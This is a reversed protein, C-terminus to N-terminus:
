MQMISSNKNAVWQVICMYEISRTKKKKKNRVSSVSYQNPLVRSHPLLSFTQRACKSYCNLCYGFFSLSYIKTHVCAGVCVATRVPKCFHFITRWILTDIRVTYASINYLTISRSLLNFRFLFLSLLFRFSVLGLITPPRTPVLVVKLKIYFSNWIPLVDIICAFVYYYHFSFHKFESYLRITGDTEGRPNKAVCKVVGFDDATVSFITLKMHTKYSPVGVSTDARSM